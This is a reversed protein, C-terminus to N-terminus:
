RPIAVQRMRRQITSTKRALSNTYRNRDYFRPRPIMAALRAAEYPTLQAASKKFYHRAAAEAGYIGDGWEIMNLYIELIRRKSMSGELMVTIIAEQGKRVMSRQGSLFLNKALQQTITSGGLVVRGQRQNRRWAKELSEWDFGQHQTFLSDESAIVARKLHSSIHEYDVWQHRLEADPNDARLESLRASMFATQKPPVQQWWLVNAFFWVQLLGFAVIALLFGRWIFRGIRM